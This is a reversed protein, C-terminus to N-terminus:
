KIDDITLRRVATLDRKLVGELKDLVVGRKESAHTVRLEIEGPEMLVVGVHGEPRNPKDRWTWFTLDLHSIDKVQIKISEWGGFGKSMYLATTRQVPLGARKAALYLYGSCDVGRVESESGGWTYRPHRDIIVRLEKEFTTQLEPSLADSNHTFSLSLLLCLLLLYRSQV